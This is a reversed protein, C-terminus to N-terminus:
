EVFYESNGKLEQLQNHLKRRVTEALFLKEKALEEEAKSIALQNKLDALNEDKEKVQHQLQRIESEYRSFGTAADTQHKSLDAKMIKM